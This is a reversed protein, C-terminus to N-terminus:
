VKFVHVLSLVYSVQTQCCVAIASSYGGSLQNSGKQQESRRKNKRWEGEFVSGPFSFDMVMLADRMVCM